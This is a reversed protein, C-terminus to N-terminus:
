TRVGPTVCYEHTKERFYRLKSCNNAVDHRNEKVTGHSFPSDTLSMCLKVCVPFQSAATQEHYAFVCHKLLPAVKEFSKM